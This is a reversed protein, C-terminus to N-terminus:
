LSVDNKNRTSNSLMSSVYREMEGLNMQQGQPPRKDNFERKILELVFDKDRKKSDLEIGKLMRDLTRSNAALSDETLPVTRPPAFSANLALDKIRVQLLLLERTLTDFIDDILPLAHDAIHQPNSADLHLGRYVLVQDVLRKSIESIELLQAFQSEKYHDIYRFMEKAISITFRSASAQERSILVKTDLLQLRLASLQDHIRALREATAMIFNFHEIVDLRARPLLAQCHAVLLADLLLANLLTALAELAVGVGEGELLWVGGGVVENRLLLAEVLVEGDVVLDGALGFVHAFQVLVLVLALGLELAVVVAPLGHVVGEALLLGSNLLLGLDEEGGLAVFAPLGSGM